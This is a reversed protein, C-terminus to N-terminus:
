RVRVECSDSGWRKCMDGNRATQLRLERRRPHLAACHAQAVAASRASLISRLTRICSTRITVRRHIRYLTNNSNATTRKRKQADARCSIGGTRSAERSASDNMENLQQERILLCNNIDTGEISRDIVHEITSAMNVHASFM